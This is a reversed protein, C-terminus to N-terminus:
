SGLTIFRFIDDFYTIAKTDIGISIPGGYYGWMVLLSSMSAAEAADIDIKSDGIMVCTTASSMLCHAALFLPQPSPKGEPLDGGAVLVGLYDALGSEALLAEAHSRRKNTVCGIKFGEIKLRCLGDIIGPYLSSNVWISQRYFSEFLNVGYSLLEPEIVKVGSNLISRKLLMRLGNGIWCKVNTLSVTPYNMQILTKNLALTLDPATDVLTGDLDFLLTNAIFTSEARPHAALPLQRKAFLNM